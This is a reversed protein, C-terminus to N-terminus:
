RSLTNASSPYASWDGRMPNEGTEPIDGPLLLGVVLKDQPAIRDLSQEMPEADRRIAVLEDQFARHEERCPQAIRKPGRQVEEAVAIRACRGNPGGEQGDALRFRHVVSQSKIGIVQIGGRDAIRLLVAANAHLCLREQALGSDRDLNIDAEAVGDRRCRLFQLKRRQERGFARAM